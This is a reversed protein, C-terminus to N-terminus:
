REHSANGLKAAIRKRRIMHAGVSEGVGGEGRKARAGDRGETRVEATGLWNASSRSVVALKGSVARTPATRLLLGSVRQM